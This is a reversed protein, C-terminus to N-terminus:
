SSADAAANPTLGAIVLLLAQSVRADTEAAYQLHVPYRVHAEVAHPSFKLQVTPLADGGTTANTTRQIEQTQREIEEQYDKLAEIVAAILESAVMSFNVTVWSM